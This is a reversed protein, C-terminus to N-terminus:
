NAGNRLAKKADRSRFRALEVTEPVSGAKAKLVRLLPEEASWTVPSHLQRRRRYELFTLMILEASCGKWRGRQKAIANVASPELARKSVNGWLDVKSFVSGSEIKAAALADV